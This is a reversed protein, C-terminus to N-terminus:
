TESLHGDLRKRIALALFGLMYGPLAILIFPLLVAALCGAGAALPMAEFAGKGEMERLFDSLPRWLVNVMWPFCGYLWLPVLLVLVFCAYIAMVASPVFALGGWELKRLYGWVFTFAPTVPHLSANGEEGM